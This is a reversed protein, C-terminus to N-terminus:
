DACQTGASEFSLLGPPKPEDPIPAAVTGVGAVAGTVTIAGILAVVIGLAYVTPRKVM